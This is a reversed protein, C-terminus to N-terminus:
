QQNARRRWITISAVVILVAVVAISVVILSQALDGSDPTIPNTASLMMEHRYVREMHQRRRAVFVWL